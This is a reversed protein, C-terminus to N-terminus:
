TIKLYQLGINISFLIVAVVVGVIISKWTLSVGKKTGEAIDRAEKAIGETKEAIDKTDSAIKKTEELNKNVANLITSIRDLSVNVDVAEAKVTIPELTIHVDRRPQENSEMNENDM